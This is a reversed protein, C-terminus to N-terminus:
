VPSRPPLALVFCNVWAIMLFRYPVRTRLLSKTGPERGSSKALAIDAAFHPTELGNVRVIITKGHNEPLARLFRAVEKRATDKMSVDVADELDFSLGDAESAM